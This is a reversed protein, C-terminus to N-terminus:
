LGGDIVSKGCRKAYDHELRAGRSDRWGRMMYVADAQDIMALCIPMYKTDPMNLPLVAPNLAVCDFAKEIKQATREFAPRNFDPLGSMPGSIFVVMKSM